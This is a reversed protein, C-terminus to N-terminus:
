FRPIQEDDNGKKTTLTDNWVGFTMAWLYMAFVVLIGVGMLYWILMVIGSSFAVLTPSIGGLVMGFLAITAIAVTYGLIALFNDIM